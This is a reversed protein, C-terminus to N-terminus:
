RIKEQMAEEESALYRKVIDNVKKNSESLSRQSMLVSSAREVFCAITLFFNVM